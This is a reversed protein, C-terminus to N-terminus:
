ETCETSKMFLLQQLRSTFIYLPFILGMVKRYDSTCGLYIVHLIDLAKILLSPVSTVDPSFKIFKDIIHFQIQVSM